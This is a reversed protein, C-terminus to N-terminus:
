NQACNQTQLILVSNNDRLVENTSSLEIKGFKVAQDKNSDNQAIVQMRLQAVDFPASGIRVRASRWGGVGASSADLKVQAVISQHRQSGRGKGRFDIVATVYNRPAGEVPNYYIIVDRLDSDVGGRSYGKLNIVAEYGAISSTNALTKVSIASSTRAIGFQAQDTPLQIIEVTGGTGCLFPHFEEANIITAWADTITACCVLAAYLCTKAFKRIM